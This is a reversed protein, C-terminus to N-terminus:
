PARGDLLDSIDCVLQPAPRWSFVGCGDPTEPGAMGRLFLYLVGGLHRGPDYGPLRWRLYRHLAASYLLAQLPYHADMMAEALRPPTYGRVLAEVGPHAPDRLLNTKYDVVLYRQSPTRLVADISGSLYGVLTAEGLGDAALRDAYAALPDASSLHRRLLGALDALTHARHGGMPLEFDMEALRDAPTFHTLATDDAVDGLPTRLAPVIARALQEAPVDLPHQVLQERCHQLVEGELDASTTDVVELVAHVLTGFAAGAPLHAFASEMEDEAAGSVAEGAVDDPEDDRFGAPRHESAHVARTLGSYSTRRWSPDVERTFRAALLDSTSDGPPSWRMVEGHPNLPETVVWPSDVLPVEETSYGAKPARDGHEKACLARHLPALRTNQKSSAWHVVLLSSARTVAVYLLRLSEGSEEADRAALLAKRNDAAPGRVDLIRRGDPDHCRIPGDVAPARRDWGFPVYVVPFELGKSTHVTLVQVAQADTELRRTLETTPERGTEMARRIQESLWDHLAVVGARTSRQQTHLASAVHRIDTLTREGQPASLVRPSLDSDHEIAAVMQAISGTEAIQSWSRLSTAVEADVQDPHLALRSPQEGFFVTLAADRLLAGRPRRMAALLTVWQAAAETAFVSSSSNVVAPVGAEILQSRVLAAQVHTGVLVAIDAPAVRRESGADSITAAGNLLGVIDRAVDRAVTDRSVGVAPAEDPHFTRLRVRAAGPINVRSHEHHATV